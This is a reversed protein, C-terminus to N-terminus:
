ATAGERPAMDVGGFSRQSLRRQEAIPEIHWGYAAADAPRVLSGDCFRLFAAGGITTREAVIRPAHCAAPPKMADGARGQYVSVYPQWSM